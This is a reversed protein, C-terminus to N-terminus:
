KNAKDENNFTITNSKKESQNKIDEQIFINLEKICEFYLLSEEENLYM